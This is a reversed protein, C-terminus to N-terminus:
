APPRIRRYIQAFAGDVSREALKQAREAAYKKLYPGVTVALAVWEIPM